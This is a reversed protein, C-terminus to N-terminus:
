SMLKEERGERSLSRTMIQFWSGFFSSPLFTGNKKMRGLGCFSERCGSEKRGEEQKSRERVQKKRKSAEKEQPDAIGKEGREMETGQDKNM